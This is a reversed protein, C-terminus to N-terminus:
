KVRDRNLTDVLENILMNSIEIAKDQTIVDSAYSDSMSSIACALASIRDTISDDLM